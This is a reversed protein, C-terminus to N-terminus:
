KKKVIKSAKDRMRQKDEPKGPFEKLAREFSVWQVTNALQNLSALRTYGEFPTPCSCGSDQAWYLVGTSTERWLVFTNFEYSLNPEEIEYVTELGLSAPSYYPNIEM